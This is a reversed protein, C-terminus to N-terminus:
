RAPIQGTSSTITAVTSLSGIASSMAPRRREAPTAARTRKSECIPM